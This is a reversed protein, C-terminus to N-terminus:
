ARIVKSSPLSIARRSAIGSVRRGAMAGSLVSGPLAGATPESATTAAAWSFALGATVLLMFVSGFLTYIFFKIAAYERRAGGWLGILFFMPLLMFEFFLYFLFFDLALFTGLLALDLLLLLAFYAKPRRTQKWSSLVALPMVLVTLLVMLISMGDMGLHFEINLLGADGLDLRIWQFKEHLSFGDADAGHALYAPLVLALFLLLQALVTGMAVGKYMNSLRSPLALTLLLGVLPVLLLITLWPTM